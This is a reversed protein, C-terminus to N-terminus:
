EIVLKVVRQNASDYVVARQRSASILTPSSFHKADDGATDTEGLQALFTPPKAANEGCSFLLVRHRQTDAVLLHGSSYALYLQTGFQRDASAGFRNMNWQGVIAGGNINYAHITQGDAVLLTHRGVAALSTLKGAPPLLGEVPAFEFQKLNAGVICNKDADLAFLTDDVQTLAVIKGAYTCRGYKNHPTPWFDIIPSDPLFKRLCLESPRPSYDGPLNPDDYSCSLMGVAHDPYGNVFGQAIPGPGEARIPPAAPDNSDFPFWLMGSTIMNNGTGIYGSPSLALSDLHPLSGFRELLTLQNNVLRAQYLADDSQLYYSADPGDIIQTTCCLAFNGQAVLGPNPQMTRSFKGLFGPSVSLWLADKTLMVNGRYVTAMTYALEGTGPLPISTFDPAPKGDPDIKQIRNEGCYINGDEDFAFRGLAM